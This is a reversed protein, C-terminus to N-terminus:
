PTALKRLVGAYATLQRSLQRDAGPLAGGEVLPALSIENDHCAIHVRENRICMGVIGGSRGGTFHSVYRWYQDKM